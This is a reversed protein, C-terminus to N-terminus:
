SNYLTEYKTFVLYEEDYAMKLVYKYDPRPTSARGGSISGQFLNQPIFGIVNVKMTAYGEIM